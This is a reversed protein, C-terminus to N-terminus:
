GGVAGAPLYKQCAAFASQFAASNPNIGSGSQIFTNGQSSPEPFNPVGHTRMCGAFKLVAETYSASPSGNGNNASQPLLSRCSQMASQFQPSNANVGKPVLLEIGKSSTSIASDPFNTVGHSRMCAAFSLASAQASNDGGVGTTSPLAAPGDTTRTTSGTHAVASPASGCAALLVTM